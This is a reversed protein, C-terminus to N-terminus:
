EVFSLFHDERAVLKEVGLLVETFRFLARFPNVRAHPGLTCVAACAHRVEAEAAAGSAPHARLSRLPASGAREAAIRSSRSRISAMVAASRPRAGTCRGIM